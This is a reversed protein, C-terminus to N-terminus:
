DLLWTMYNPSFAWMFVIAIGLFLITMSGSLYRRKFVASLSLTVLTPVSVYFLPYLLMVPLRWGDGIWKMPILGKPDQDISHYTGLDVQYVGNVWYPYSRWGVIACALFASAFPALSVLDKRNRFCALLFETLAINTAVLGFLILAVRYHHLSDTLYPRYPKFTMAYPALSLLVVLCGASLRPILRQPVNSDCIQRMFFNNIPQQLSKVKQM